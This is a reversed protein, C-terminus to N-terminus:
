TQAAAQRKFEAPNSRYLEVREAENMDKFAKGGEPAGGGSAGSGQGKPWFMPSKTRVAELWDDPKLPTRGDKGFAVEQGNRQVPNGQDDVSWGEAEAKMVLFEIGEPLVGSKAAATAIAARVAAKGLADAREQVARLKQEHDERMRETRRAVVGDIDGKKILDAEENSQITELLQTVLEPNAGKFKALKGLLEDRKAVLPATQKAVAEAIRQELEAPTLTIEDSTGGGGTNGPDDSRFRQAPTHFRIM